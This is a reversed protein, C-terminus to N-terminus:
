PSPKKLCAIRIMELVGELRKLVDENTFRLIRYGRGTLWISRQRDHEMREPFTHVDGDIEIVTRSTAHYFDVIFPGLPHQRRIHLGSLQEMRLHSWLHKEASTMERRLGRAKQLTKDSTRWRPM